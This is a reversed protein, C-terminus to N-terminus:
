LWNNSLRNRHGIFLRLSQDLTEVNKLTVKQSFRFDSEIKFSIQKFYNIHHSRKGKDMM